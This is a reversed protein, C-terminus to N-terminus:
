DFFLFARLEISERPAACEDAMSNDFSAHAVGGGGELDSDTQRLMIVEDEALDKLYYWEHKPSHYLRVNETFRNNWVVDASITESDYNITRYDCLALPWDNGPGQLSKWFSYIETNLEWIDKAFTIPVNVESQLLTFQFIKSQILTRRKKFPTLAEGIHVLTAPQSFDVTQEAVAPFKAHRKRIDHELIKIKAAEPYIQRLYKQIASYYVEEVRNTNSFEAATLGCPIRMASFGYDEFNSSNQLPRFDYVTVLKPTNMMNTRPIEGEADYRLEYPKEGEHKPDKTLYVVETQIGDASAM